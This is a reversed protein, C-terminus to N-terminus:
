LFLYDIYVLHVNKYIHDCSNYLISAEARRLIFVYTVRLPTFLSLAMDILVNTSKRVSTSHM